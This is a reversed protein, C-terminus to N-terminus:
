LKVIKGSEADVLVYDGDKLLKTATGTGVVCPVGYERSVIAAHSTIGGQDTVIAAAKMMAVVYQPQTQTAVLIEGPQFDNLDKKSRVIRVKGKALGQCAVMGKIIEDKQEKDKILKLIKDFEKKNKFYHFQAKGGEPWAARHLSSRRKKFKEIKNPKDIIGLIEDFNLNDTIKPDYKDALAEKLVNQFLYDLRIQKDAAQNDNLNIQIMQKLLKRNNPSIRDLFSHISIKQDKKVLESLQLLFDKEKWTRSGKEGTNIWGFTKAHSTIKDQLRKPLKEFVFNAKKFSTPGNKHLKILRRNSETLKTKSAQSVVYGVLQSTDVNESQCIRNVEKSIAPDFGISVSAMLLSLNKQVKQYQDLNYHGGKEFQQILEDAETLIKKQKEILKKVEKSNNFFDSFRNVVQDHNSPQLFEDGVIAQKYGLKIPNDGYAMVEVFFLDLYWDFEWISGKLYKGEKLQKILNKSM